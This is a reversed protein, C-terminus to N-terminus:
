RCAARRAAAPGGRRRRHVAHARPRAPRADLAGGRDLRAPDPRRPRHPDGAGGDPALRGPRGLPRRHARRRAPAGGRLQRPARRGGLRAAGLRAELRPRLRRAAGPEPRDRRAADRPARRRRRAPRPGARFREALQAASSFARSREVAVPLDPVGAARRVLEAAPLDGRIRPRSCGATPRAPPSSSARRPPHALLPPPPAPRRRGVAARPDADHRGDARGRRRADPDRGCRRLASQAGDAAVIYRAEVVREAGSRVDRLTARAGDLAVVETGLLVRDASGTWCCRSSTTRPSARRSSRASCAARPAAPTASRSRRAPLRM